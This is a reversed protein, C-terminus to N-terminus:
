LKLNLDVQRQKEGGNVTCQRHSGAERQRQRWGVSSHGGDVAYCQLTAVDVAAATVHSGQHPRCSHLSMASMQHTPMGAIDPVATATAATTTTVAAAAVAPLYLHANWGVSREKKHANQHGGLAQSKLFKKNCFLCPFLRVGGGNGGGRGGDGGGGGGGRGPAVPSSSGPSSPPPSTPGLTLSLDIVFGDEDIISLGPPAEM